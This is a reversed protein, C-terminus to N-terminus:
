VSNEIHLGWGESCGRGGGVEFFKDFLRSAVNVGCFSVGGQTGVPGVELVEGSEAYLVVKRMQRRSGRGDSEVDGVARAGKARGGDIVPQGRDGLGVLSGSKFGRGRRAMVENDALGELADAARDASGLLAFGRKQGAVNAPDDGAARVRKKTEAVPRENQHAEGTGEAARFKGCDLAGVEREGLVAEDDIHAAQLGVLLGGSPLDANGKPLLHFGARNAGQTVPHGVGANDITGDEAPNVAMAPGGAAAEVLVADAPDHLPGAAAGGQLRLRETSM